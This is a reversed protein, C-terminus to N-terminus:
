GLNKRSVFCGGGEVKIIDLCTDALKEDGMDRAVEKLRNIATIYRLSVLKGLIERRLSKGFRKIFKELLYRDIREINDRIILSDLLALESGAIRTKKGEIEITETYKKLDNYLNKNATKKGSTISKILITHTPSLTIKKNQENKSYVILSDPISLDRMLLELAKKGSIFYEGGTEDRLIKRIMQWYIRDFIRDMDVSKGNNVYYIGQRVPTIIDLSRLRYLFKYSATRGENKRVSFDPDM